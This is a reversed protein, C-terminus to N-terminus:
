GSCSSGYRRRRLALVGIMALAWLGASARSGGPSTACGVGVALGKDTGNFSYPTSVPMDDCATEGNYSFVLKDGSSTITTTGSLARTGCAVYDADEDVTAVNAVGLGEWAVRGSGNHKAIQITEGEVTSAYDIIMSTDRAVCTQNAPFFLIGSEEVTGRFVVDVETPGQTTFAITGSIRVSGIAPNGKCKTTDVGFRDYTAIGDGESLMGGGDPLNPSDTEVVTFKGFWTRGEDDTCGGTTIKTGPVPETITPCVPSGELTPIGSPLAFRQLIGVASAKSLQLVMAADDPDIQLPPIGAFLEDGGADTSGDLPPTSGDVSGDDPPGGDVILSSRPFDFTFRLSSAAEISASKTALTDDGRHLTAVLEYTGAALDGFSALVRPSDFDDGAKVIVARTDLEGGGQKLALTVRDFETGPELDTRVTVAITINGSSPTEGDCAITGLLALLAGLPFRLDRM